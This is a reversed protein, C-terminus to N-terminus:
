KLEGRMLIVVYNLDGFKEWKSGWIFKFLTQNVQKIFTDPLVVPLDSAKYVLKTIVMSKIVTIKGLLTM